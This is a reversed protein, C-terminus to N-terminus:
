DLANLQGVLETTGNGDGLKNMAVCHYMGYDKEDVIHIRISLMLTHLEVEELAEISFKANSALRVDDKVWMGIAQPHATIRCVLMTERNRYQSIRSNLM